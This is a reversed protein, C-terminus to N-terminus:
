GRRAPAPPARARPRGISANQMAVLGSSTAIFQAARCIRREPPDLGGVRDLGDEGGLFQGVQDGLRAGLAQQVGLLVGPDGARQRQM